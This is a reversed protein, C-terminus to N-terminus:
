SGLAQAVDNATFIIGFLPCVNASTFVSEGKTQIRSILATLNAKTTAAAGFIAALGARINASTADVTGPSIMAQYCNQQLATLVAYETWVISTNMEWSPIAPRYVLGSGAQNLYAAIAIHNNAAALPGATADALIAAKLTQLQAPTM